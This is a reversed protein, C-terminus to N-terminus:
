LWMVQMGQACDILESIREECKARKVLRRAKSNEEIRQRIYIEIDWDQATLQIKPVDRFAEQIDKPHQRSTIFLNAGSEVMPFFLPLLDKRQNDLHCEDLADFVLFVRPFSKFTAILATYLEDFKSRKGKNQFRDYLSEIEAPLHEIQTALQRVLSSLVEMPKQQNQEKYNFYIYAVGYGERAAEAQFHDIM